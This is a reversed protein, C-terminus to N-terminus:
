GFGFDDLPTHGISEILAFRDEEPPAGELWAPWWASALVRMARTPLGDRWRTMEVGDVSFRVEGPRLAIAYEHVALRPDFPLTREALHTQAGDKWTSFLARRSGDGFIEVDVEDNREGPVGEYLFFATLSGPADAVRLRARILGSSYPDASAIEAGDCRGAPLVLRVGGEPAAVNAPDFCGRGLGHSSRTWAAGGWEM